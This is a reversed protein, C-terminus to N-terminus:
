RSDWKRTAVNYRLLRARANAPSVRVAWIEGTGGVLYITGPTSQGVPSFSCITSTGFQVPSKTPPMLDGDPDKITWAPLAIAVVRSELFVPRPMTVRRDIGKKIDDNRVGDGDGDDYIAFHWKGAIELFKVGSNRSRAIARSSALRFVSRLETSASAISARNHLNRFAPASFSVILGIIALVILLEILTFGRHHQRM